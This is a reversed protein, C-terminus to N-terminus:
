SFFQMKLNDIKSSLLIYEKSGIKIYENMDPPDPRTIELFIIIGILVAVVILWIKTQTKM